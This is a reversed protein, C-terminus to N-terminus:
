NRTAKLEEKRVYNRYAQDMESLKRMLPRRELAHVLPVLVPLVGDLKDIIREVGLDRGAFEVYKIGARSCIGAKVNDREIQSSHDDGSNASLRTARHHRSGQFEVAVRANYFWVDIELRGSGDGSVLWRPRVNYRFDRDEVLLELKWKLLWEGLNPVDERVREFEDVLLREVELPMWAYVITGGRPAPGLEIVWGTEKLRAISRRFTERPITSLRALAHPTSARQHRVVTYVALDTSSLRRDDLLARIVIREFFRVLTM